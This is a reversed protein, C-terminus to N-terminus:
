NGCGDIIAQFNVGFSVEFGSNLEVCNAADYIIDDGLILNNGYLINSVEYQNTTNDIDAYFYRESPCICEVEEFKVDDIYINHAISSGVGFNLYANYINDPGSTFEHVYQSPTTTIIQDTYYQSLNADDNIFVSIPRDDDAHATYTIKYTKNKELVIGRQRLSVHWQSTGLAQVNIIASNNTFDFSAAATSFVLPKWGHDQDSFNGNTLKTCETCSGDIWPFLDIYFARPNYNPDAASGEKTIVIEHNNIFSIGEYQRFPIQFSFSTGGFFDDGTFCSFVWIREYTLLVLKKKDPSLDAGTVKFRNPIDGPLIVQYEDHLIATHSGGANPTDPIKYCYTYNEDLSPDSNSSVTKTFTYLNGNLHVIAESDRVGNTPYQYDIIESSPVTGSYNNPNPIKIIQLPPPNIDHVKNGFDALYLNQNDDQTMDEWDVYPIGIDITKIVAAVDNLRFNYIEELNDADNHVWYEYHGSSPNYILELGSPESVIDDMWDIPELPIVTQANLLTVFSLFSFALIFIHKMINSQLVVYMFLACPGKSPKNFIAKFLIASNWNIHFISYSKIACHDLCLFVYIEIQKILLCLKM